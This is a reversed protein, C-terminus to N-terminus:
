LIKKMWEVIVGQVLEYNIRVELEYEPQGSKEGYIHVLEKINAPITLLLQFEETEWDIDFSGDTNPLVLPISIDFGNYWLDYLIKRLLTTTHNWAEITIAKSGEEDWNDPLGVINESYERLKEDLKIINDKFLFKEVLYNQIEGTGSPAILKLFYPSKSYEDLYKSFPGYQTEIFKEHFIKESYYKRVLPRFIEDLKNSLPKEEEQFSELELDGADIENTKKM